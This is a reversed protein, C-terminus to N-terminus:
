PLGIKPITAPPAMNDFKMMAVTDPNETGSIKFFSPTSGASADLIKTVAHVSVNPNKIKRPRAVM